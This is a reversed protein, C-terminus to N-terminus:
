FLYRKVSHLDTKLDLRYEYYLKEIMKYYRYGSCDTVIAKNFSILRCRAIVTHYGPVYM